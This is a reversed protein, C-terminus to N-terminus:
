FDESSGLFCVCARSSNCCIRATQKWQVYIKVPGWNNRYTLLCSIFYVYCWTGWDQNSGEELGGQGIVCSIVDQIYRHLLMVYCPIVSVRDGLHHTWHCCLQLFRQSTRKNRILARQDTFMVMSREGDEMEQKQAEAASILKLQKLKPRSNIKFATRLNVAQMIHKYRLWPPKIEVPQAAKYWM